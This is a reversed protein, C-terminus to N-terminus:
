GYVNVARVLGASGHIKRGTREPGAGYVNVPLRADMLRGSPDWTSNGGRRVLTMATQGAEAQSAERSGSLGLASRAVMLPTTVSACPAPTGPAVTVMLFSSVPTSLTWTVLSDAGVRRRRQHEAAVRDGHIQLAELLGHGRADEKLAAVGDPVVDRCTPVIFSTTSTTEVSPPRASVRGSTLWVTL